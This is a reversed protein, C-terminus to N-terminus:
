KRAEPPLLPSDVKFSHLEVPEDGYGDDEDEEDEDDVEQIETDIAIEPDIDRWDEVLIWEDGDYVEIYDPDIAESTLWADHNADRTGLPDEILDEELFDLDVRLVVPILEDELVDDSQHEAHEEARAHWFFVGDVETLFIRGKAHADYAPGGIARARGPVLGREAISGLRGYYTVHYVYEPEDSM